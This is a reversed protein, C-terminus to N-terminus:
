KLRSGCRVMEILSVTHKLGRPQRPPKAVSLHLYVTFILSFNLSISSLLIQPSRSGAPIWANARIWHNGAIAATVTIAPFGNGETLGSGSKQLQSFPVAETGVVQVCNRHISWNESKEDEFCLWKSKQPGSNAFEIRLDMQPLEM